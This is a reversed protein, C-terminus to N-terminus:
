PEVEPAAATDEENQADLEKRLGQALKVAEANRNREIVANVMDSLGDEFNVHDIADKTMARAIDPNSTNELEDFVIRLGNLGSNILAKVGLHSYEDRRQVMEQFLPLAEENPIFEGIGIGSSYYGDPDGRQLTNSILLEAALRTGQNTIAAASSERVQDNQSALSQGLLSTVDDGGITLELAEAFVGADEKSKAASIGDLLAQVNEPKGSIALVEALYSRQEPTTAPDTMMSRISAYLEPCWTCDPGPQTFQELTADDYDKAGKLLAALAEEANKYSDAASKVTEPIPAEEGDGGDPSTAGSMLTMGASGTDSSATTPATQSDSTTQPATPAKGSTSYFYIGVVACLAILVSTLKNM